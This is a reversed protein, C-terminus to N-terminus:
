MDTGNRTIGTNLFEKAIRRWVADRNVFHYLTKCVQSLRSLSKYDVYSLIQYLVDEPLQPLLMSLAKVLM